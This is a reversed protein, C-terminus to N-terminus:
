FDLNNGVVSLVADGIINGFTFFRLGTLNVMAMGIVAKRPTFNVACDGILAMTVDYRTM